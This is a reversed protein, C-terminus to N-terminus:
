MNKLKGKGVFFTSLKAVFVDYGYVCPCIWSNKIPPPDLSQNLFSQQVNKYSIVEGGCGGCWLFLNDALNGGYNDPRTNRLRHVGVQLQHLSYQKALLPSCIM